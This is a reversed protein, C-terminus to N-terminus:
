GADHVGYGVCQMPENIVACLSSVRHSGSRVPSAFDTNTRRESRSQIEPATLGGNAISARATDALIDRGGQAKREGREFAVGIEVNPFVKMWEEKVRQGAAVTAQEAARIDLRRQRALETLNATSLGDEPFSPLSDTLALCEAAETLGLIIALSRRAEAAALRATEVSLEAELVSERSLNVELRGGAGAQQRSITL